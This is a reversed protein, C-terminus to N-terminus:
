QDAKGFGKSRAAGFWHRHPAADFERSQTLNIEPAKSVDDPGPPAFCYRIRSRRRVSVVPHGPLYWSRGRSKESPTRAADATSRTGAPHAQTTRHPRPTPQIALRVSQHLLPARASADPSLNDM